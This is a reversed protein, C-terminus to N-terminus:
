SSGKTDTREYLTAVWGYDTRTHLLRKALHKLGRSNATEDRKITSNRSAEIANASPTLWEGCMPCPIGVHFSPRNRRRRRQWEMLSTAMAYHKKPGMFFTKRSHFGWDVLLSEMVSSDYRRMHYDPSFRSCCFPCQILHAELDEENPVSILIYQRAVRCIQALGARYISTPLHEIVELSTVIDFSQDPFPLKDISAATKETKVHRLATLSRDTGHIIEFRDSTEMLQHVFAGNGCGVDLLSRANLPINEIVTRFRERHIKFSEETWFSENEYYQKETSM